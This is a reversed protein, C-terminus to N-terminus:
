ILEPDGSNFILHGWGELHGLLRGERHRERKEAMGESPQTGRSVGKEGGGQGQSLAQQNPTETVRRFSGQGLLDTVEEGRFGRRQQRLIM